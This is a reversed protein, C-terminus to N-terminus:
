GVTVEDRIRDLKAPGIGSVALLDDIQAFPGSRERHELIAEALAPGIGTLSELEAAGARNLDVIGGDTGSAAAPDLVAAGVEGILPLYYHTGDTLPAALNVRDLDADALPGGAATVADSLRSGGDLRIVGPRHVAGAIHVVVEPATTTPAVAPAAMPIRLEPAAPTPRLFVAAGVALALLGVAAVPAWRPMRARLEELLDAPGVRPAASVPEGDLSM